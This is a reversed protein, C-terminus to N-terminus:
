WLVVRQGEPAVLPANVPCHFAQAFAPVNTVVGNVRWRAASHVDYTMLQKTFEPRTKERWVNAYAIFFRQEPTFGDIRVRPKGALSAELADYAILLGGLDAVNESATRDGDVWFGDYVQYKYYQAALNRVRKGYDIYEADTWWSRERRKSDIHSGAGDFAHTIEHGLVVGLAGYNSADDASPDFFPPVLLGVAVQIQNYTIREDSKRFIASYFGTADILPGDWTLKEGSQGVAALDRDRTFHLIARLNDAYSASTLSLGTYNAPRDEPYVVKFELSDLKAQAEAKTADSMWALADIRHKMARRLNQFLQTVRTELESPFKSAAYL